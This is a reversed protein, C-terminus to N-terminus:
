EGKELRLKGILSETKRIGDEVQRKANDIKRQVLYDAVIGDLFCDAFSLFGGIDIGLDGFDPIDKLERQFIKLNTRASELHSSAERIKSHKVLSTVFGGGVMDWIGWGRASLLSNRALYLSTLAKEGARVAERIEQRRREETMYIRGERERHMVKILCVDDRYAHIGQPM